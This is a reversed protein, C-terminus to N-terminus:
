PNNEVAGNNVRWYENKDLVNIVGDLNFDATTSNGNASTGNQIRWLQIKDTEDITGDGNADGAILFRIDGVMKGADQGGFVATGLQSFDLKLTDTLAVPIETTLSLHNAHSVTVYASDLSLGITLLSDGETTILDGDRQLLMAESVHIISPDIKDRLEVKVWDVIAASGEEEVLGPNVLEGLGYPDEMSFLNKQRLSDSMLGVTPDYPGELFLRLSLDRKRIGLCLCGEEQYTDNFTDPDGDDCAQGILTNDLNICSDQVNCIGDDDTDLFTGKCECSTIYVDNITCSDGDDCVSGIENAQGLVFAIQHRGAPIFAKPNCDLFTIPSVSIGDILVEQINPYIFTVDTGSSHIYGQNDDIQLSIPQESNFGYTGNNSSFTTGKITLFSVVENNRKRAYVSNASFTIDEVLQPITSNKSKLVIDEFETSHIIKVGSYADTEPIKDVAPLSHAAEESFSIVATHVERNEPTYQFEIAATPDQKYAKNSARILVEDPLSSIFLNGKETSDGNPINVNADVPFSYHYKDTQTDVSNLMANPQYLIRVTSNNDAEIDDFVMFYANLGNMTDAKVLSLSRTHEAGEIANASGTTGFEVTGGILGDSLEGGDREKHSIQDDLLVVNQWRAEYWRDGSPTLGPYRPAYNAGSNAMIFQGYATLCVSNANDHDHGTHGGNLSYLVGQFTEDDQLTNDWLAAGSNVKLLSEPMEGVSLSDPTVIYRFTNTDYFSGRPFTTTGNSQWDVYWMANKALEPSYATFYTSLINSSLKARGNQRSVDSPNQVMDGFMTSSGFPTKSFGSIWEFTQNFLSDQHFDYLGMHQLIFLAGIKSIREGGLRATAYGPSSGYSGDPLLYHYQGEIYKQIWYQTEESDKDLYLHFVLAINATLEGRGLGNGNTPRMDNVYWDMVKALMEQAAQLQDDTIYDHIMDLAIVSNVFDNGIRVISAHSYGMDCLLNDWRSIGNLINDIYPQRLSPDPERLYEIINYGLHEGLDRNTENWRISAFYRAQDFMTSRFTFDQNQLQKTALAPYDDEYMLLSPHAQNSRVPFRVKDKHPVDAWVKINDVELTLSNFSYFNIAHPEEIVDEEIMSVAEIGDVYLIIENNTKNLVLLFTHWVGAKIVGPESFTLLSGDREQLRVSGDNRVGFM